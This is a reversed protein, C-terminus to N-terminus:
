RVGGDAAGTEGMSATAAWCTSHALWCRPDRARTRLWWCWRGPLTWLSVRTGCAQAPWVNKCHQEGFAAADVCVPAYRSPCPSALVSSFTERSIPAAGNVTQTRTTCALSRANDETPITRLCVDGQTHMHRGCRVSQTSTFSTFSTGTSRRSTAAGCRACGSARLLWKRVSRHPAHAVQMCPARHCPARAQRISKRKSQKLAALFDDFSGYGENDWHYQIGTRSLFGMDRMMDHEEATNFTM